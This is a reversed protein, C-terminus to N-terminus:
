LTISEVKGGIISQHSQAEAIDGELFVMRDSCIHFVKNTPYSKAYEIAIKELEARKAVKAADVKAVKEAAKTAKDAEEKVRKQAQKEQEAQKALEAAAKAEEAAKKEEQTM